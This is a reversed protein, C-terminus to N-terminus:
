PLMSGKDQDLISRVRSRKLGYRNASVLTAAAIVFVPYSVEEELMRVGNRNLLDVRRKARQNRNAGFELCAHGALGVRKEQIM